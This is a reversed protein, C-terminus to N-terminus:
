KYQLKTQLPPNAKIEGLQRGRDKLVFGQQRTLAPAIPILVNSEEFIIARRTFVIYVVRASRASKQLGKCLIRSHATDQLVLNCIRLIRGSPVHQNKFSLNTIAMAYSRHGASVQALTWYLGSKVNEIANLHCM